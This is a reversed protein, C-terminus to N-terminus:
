HAQVTIKRPKDAEPRTLEIELVGDTFRAQVKDPDVRFPLQVARTFRGYARERRHWSANESADPKREGRLTLVDNELAIDVGNSEIGPLEATVVISNEGLWLNVLPFERPAAAVTVGSFARNVEDHLRRLEAFSDFGRRGFEQRPWM